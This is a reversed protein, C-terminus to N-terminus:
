LVTYVIDMRTINSRNSLCDIFFISFLYIYMYTYMFLLTISSHLFLYISPYISHHIFTTIFLHISLYLSSRIYSCIFPHISLTISLNYNHLFLYISPDISLTISSHLFLYISPYISHHIFTSISLHISLYFYHVFTHIALYDTSQTMVCTGAAWKMRKYELYCRRQVYM